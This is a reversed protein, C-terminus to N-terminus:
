AQKTFLGGKGTGGGKASDSRFAIKAVRKAAKSRPGRDYDLEIGMGRFLQSERAQSFLTEVGRSSPAFFIWTTM